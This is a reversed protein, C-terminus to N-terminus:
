ATTSRLFFITSALLAAPFSLRLTCDKGESITNKKRTRSSSCPMQEVVPYRTRVVGGYHVAMCKAEGRKDALVHAGDGRAM